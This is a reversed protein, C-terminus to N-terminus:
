DVLLPSELANFIKRTSQFSWVFKAFEANENQAIFGLLFATSASIRSFTWELPSFTNRNVKKAIFDIIFYHLKSFSSELCLSM